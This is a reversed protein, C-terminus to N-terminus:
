SNPGYILATRRADAAVKERLWSPSVVEIESGFSRLWADFERCPRIRFTVTVGDSETRQTVHWRHTRAYTAWKPAFKVRVESLTADCDVFVGWVLSLAQEPDFEQPTPYDFVDSLVRLTRIRSFRYAHLGGARDRVLIYLQHEHILLSLPEGDVRRRAGDFGEYTMQIRRQMLVAEVLDDLRGSEFRLAPDGGREVFHFKRTLHQFAAARANRAVISERAQMMGHEYATGRFMRGLGAMFCSALAAQLTTPDFLLRHDLVLGVTGRTVGKLEALVTLYRDAQPLSIDAIEAIRQRDLQEGTLLANFLRISRALQAGRGDKKRQSTM